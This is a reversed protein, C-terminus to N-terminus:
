EAPKFELLEYEVRDEENDLVAKVYGLGPFVYYDSPADDINLRYHLCQWTGAPVTVAVDSAVLKVLPPDSVPDPNGPEEHVLPWSEGVRAPYKLFLSASTLSPPMDQAQGPQPEDVFKDENYSVIGDMLGRSSLRTWVHYEFERLHYWPLEQKMFGFLAKEELLRIALVRNTVRYQESRNDAKITKTAQYQWTNGLKLPFLPTVAKTKEADGSQVTPGAGTDQALSVGSLLVLATLFAIGALKTILSM